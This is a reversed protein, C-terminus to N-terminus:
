STEPPSAEPPPLQVERLQVSNEFCHDFGFHPYRAYWTDQQEHTDWHEGSSSKGYKHVWGSGNHGEGWTRNWREGFKGQWWTEGQKVGHGSTNFNEDWKDGWKSWGDGESREAWKDTYKTSGGMGDYKEGWREHWVHAHGDELPTNPDISCYKDAWKEAQGTADYHEWWKEHWQGGMGNKGWKDASKEMHEVGTIHDQWMSEKWYERWINGSADRGSKESGLEKYDNEGVAEWFKDEWEVSGDASVGRTLTWRCLAGDTRQELGTEKWWKVGDETVGETSAEDVKNLAEVAESANASFAMNEEHKEGMTQDELIPNAIDLKGVETLSQLPPLPPNHTESLASEFPISLSDATREKEVVSYTPNPSLTPKATQLNSKDESPPTWSWFDPGPTGPGLTKSSSVFISEADTGQQQDGIVGNSSIETTELDGNDDDFPSDKKIVPPTEKLLAQAAAIAAAARDIVQMRQIQDREEKPVELIKKFEDSKKEIVKPDNDSEEEVKEGNADGNVVAMNQFEITKRERDMATKWMDLYSSSSSSSEANEVRIGWSRKRRGRYDHRSEIQPKVSVFHSPTKKHPFLVLTRINARTYANFQAAM